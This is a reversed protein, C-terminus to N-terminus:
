VSYATYMVGLAVFVLIFNLQKERFYHILYVVMRSLVLITPISTLVFRPFKGFDKYPDDDIGQRIQVM